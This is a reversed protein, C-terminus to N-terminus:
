WNRTINRSRSKSSELCRVDGGLNTAVGLGDAGIFSPSEWLLLYGSYYQGLPIKLKVSWPEQQGREPMPQPIAVKDRMWIAGELVRSAFADL